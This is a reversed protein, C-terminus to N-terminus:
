LKARTMEIARAANLMQTRHALASDLRTSVESPLQADWYAMAATKVGVEIEPLTPSLTKRLDNLIPEIDKGHKLAARKEIEVHPLQGPRRVEFRLQELDDLYASQAAVKDVTLVELLAQVKERAQAVAAQKTRAKLRELTDTEFPDLYGMPAPNSAAKVTPNRFDPLILSATKSSTPSRADTTEQIERGLSSLVNDAQVTPFEVLRDDSKDAAKKQFVENFAANNTAESLRHVQQNTLKMTSAIKTVSETLDVGHKVYDRAAAGALSEIERKNM